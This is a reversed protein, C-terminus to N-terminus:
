IFCKKKESIKCMHAHTPMLAWRWKSEENTDYEIKADNLIKFAANLKLIHTQLKLM